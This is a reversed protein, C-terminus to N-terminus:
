LFRLALSRELVFGSAVERGSLVNRGVLHSSSPIPWLASYGSTGTLRHLIKFGAPRQRESPQDRTTDHCPQPLTSGLTPLCRSFKHHFPKKIRHPLSPLSPHLQDASSLCCANTMHISSISTEMQASEEDSRRENVEVENPMTLRLVRM